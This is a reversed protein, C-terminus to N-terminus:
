WKKNILYSLLITNRWISGRGSLGNERQNSLANKYDLKEMVLNDSKMSSPLSSFNNGRGVSDRGKSVNEEAEQKEKEVLM